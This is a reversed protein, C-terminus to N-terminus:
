RLFVSYHVIHKLDDPWPQEDIIIILESHEAHTFFNDHYELGNISINNEQIINRNFLDM